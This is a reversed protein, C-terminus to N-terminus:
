SSPKRRMDTYVSREFINGVLM